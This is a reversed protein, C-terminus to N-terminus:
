GSLGIFKKITLLENKVHEGFTGSETIEELSKNMVGDIIDTKDQTTVGSGTAVVTADSTTSLNVLVQFSGLTPVVINNGYIESEDVFLNGSINLTHNGEYPRIKWGNTLFFYPAVTNVGTTPDGGVTRLAPLFKTNTGERMWQKWVSYIDAKVDLSVVGNNVIILNEVGDFTVSDM